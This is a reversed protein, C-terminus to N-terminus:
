PKRDEIFQFLMQAGNALRPGPRSLENNQLNLIAGNAVAPIQAWGPRAAIEEEPSPGEGAYMSITVIYDPARAFM